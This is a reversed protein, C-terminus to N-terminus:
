KGSSLEAFASDLSIGGSRSLYCGVHLVGAGTNQVTVKAHVGYAGAPPHVTSLQASYVTSFGAPGRPGQSGPAGQPGTPGTAAVAGTAGQPGAPGTPGAPGAPGTAGPAGDMGAPGQPGTPGAPGTFGDGISVDIQIMGAQFNVDGQYTAAIT